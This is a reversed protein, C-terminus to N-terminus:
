DDGIELNDVTAKKGNIMFTVLLDNVANILVLILLILGLVPLGLSTVTYLYGELKASM